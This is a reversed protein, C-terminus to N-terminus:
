ILISNMCSPNNSEIWTSIGFEIYAFKKHTHTCYKLINDISTMSEWILKVLYTKRILLNTAHLFRTMQM